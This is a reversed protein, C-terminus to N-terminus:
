KVEIKSKYFQLRLYNILDSYTTKNDPDNKQSTRLYELMAMSSYSMFVVIHGVKDSSKWLKLGLPKNDAVFLYLEGLRSHYAFDAVMNRVPKEPDHIAKTLRALIKKGAIGLDTTRDIVKVEDTTVHVYPSEFVTKFKTM